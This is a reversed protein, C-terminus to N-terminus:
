TRTASLGARRSEDSGSAIVDNRGHDSHISRHFDASLKTLSRKEAFDLRPLDLRGAFRRPQLAKITRQKSGDSAEGV